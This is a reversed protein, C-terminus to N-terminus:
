NKSSTWIKRLAQFAGRRLGLLLLSGGFLMGLTPDVRKDTTFSPVPAVSCGFGNGGLGTEVLGSRTSVDANSGDNIDPIGDDNSDPLQGETGQGPQTEDAVPGKFGDGNSDPDSEDVVGDGDADAGPAFDSDVADDISDGDVDAGGTSDADNIDPVGDGDSDVLSDSQGNGDVDIGGSEIIDTLGDNDSDLDLSNPAGDGDTDRLPAIAAAFNDDLGDGNADTFNDIRGDNSQDASQGYNEVIDSVGDQDSDLDRFNPIRDMDFDLASLPRSALSDDAGDANSDAQVDLRGDLNVDAGLSEAVDTLGDNDSDLDLYDPVGDGDTDVVVDSAGQVLGFQDAAGSALRGSSSISGRSAELADYVGDNDSDLDLFNPIGDGDADGSGEVSDLIGDNDSDRDLSNVIGDSDADGNGELADSIGDNDDDSDAGNNQGDADADDNQDPAAPGQGTGNGQQFDPVGNGDTDVPSNVDPGAEQADSIGDNDSDQERFDAAGDNDSDSPNGFSGNNEASDPIGDNDSDLDRFDRVGDGDTDFLPLASAQVADDVGKNDADSFGDIRGDSDADVGGAEVLDGIGDNDSDIDIYDPTGDGDTDIIPASIQGSDASTEIVNAIGNAGVEIRIDIAGIAVPDLTAITAADFRGEVLDLIGDNDSDLDLGDPTGDGDSDRSSADAFGDNNADIIGEETDLIGDNDDDLDDQNAIGDGDSDPRLGGGVPDASGQDSGQDSGSGDNGSNQVGDEQFDPVSNGNSDAPAGPNSGAEVTDSVGDGDSDQERFDAAGDGDSDTPQALGGPSEVSDPLGDNDSDSDQFDRVGDGDTDFLPLASSQISDDVGKDDSDVFGDIRGDNDNDVGGAEVLDAIGDNDSDLDIFDPTGDGDTDFLATTLQGSDTGTEISDAVGNGSVPELIDIAGVGRRDLNEAVSQSLRGEFLDLIGDNDSDLDYADPTGDGDTDRSSADAFGDGDADVLGEETDLIGDNDDDLDDQNAIGDADRDPRLGGSSDNAAGGSGNDNSNSGSGPNSDGDQFDPIGDGDTDVPSNPNNGAENRDSVGDGDSDNERFDPAGDGDTDTPNSRNGGGEVRDPISDGDSDLDRFDLVGDGDTEFLPLASSQITDDVGKGDTDRFGDIRGDTDTDVGGAEIIDYIEDNDSDLDRFDSTGDADTDPLEFRLQGSDASTEIVNAIGNSGVDIGIDIAGNSVQDLAQAAAVDTRGEFLDFIGDNDSDLDLVDPTGDNDTDTSNSDPFGDGNDDVLGEDSDLIGDNDDDHDDQNRIGDGDSDPGSASMAAVNVSSSFFENLSRLAESTPTSAELTSRESHALAQSSGGGLVLAIAIAVGSLTGVGHSSHQASIRGASHSTTNKQSIDM